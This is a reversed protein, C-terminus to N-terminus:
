GKKIKDEETQLLRSVLSKFLSSGHLIDLNELVSKLETVGILAAVLKSAPLFNGLLYVETIFALLLAVEYLFFKGVTQKLGSSTIPIKQKRAALLGTILDAVVLVGTTIIVTKIPAFVALVSLALNALWARM